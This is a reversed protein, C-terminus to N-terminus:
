WPWYILIQRVM